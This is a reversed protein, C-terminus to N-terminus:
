LRSVEEDISSEHDDQKPMFDMKNYQGHDKSKKECIATKWPHFAHYYIVSLLAYVAICTAYVGVFQVPFKHLPPQFLIQDLYSQNEIMNDDNVHTKKINYHFMTIRLIAGMVSYILLTILHLIVSNIIIGYKQLIM